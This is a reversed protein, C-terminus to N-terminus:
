NSHQIFVSTPSSQQITGGCSTPGTFQWQPNLREGRNDMLNLQNFSAKGPGFQGCSDVKYVELTVDAWNYQYDGVQANLTTHHGQFVSDIAWTSDSKRVVSGLVTAGPGLGFVPPSSVTINSPCCAWSKIYWQQWGNGWTLVPQIINVATPADNDQMGIFYFLFQGCVTPPNNPVIYTATFSQLNNQGQPPYWGGYDLWGNIEQPATGEPIAQPNEVAARRAAAREKIQQIDSSCIEPVKHFRTGYSPHSIRLVNPLSPHPAITADHEVELVCEKPRIGYPTIVTETQSALAYALLLLIIQMEALGV